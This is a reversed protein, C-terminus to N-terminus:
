WDYYALISVRVADGDTGDKTTQGAFELEAGLVLGKLWDGPRFFANGLVKYGHDFTEGAQYDRNDMDLYGFGVTSSIYPTWKHELAIQGGLTTLNEVNGNAPDYAMDLNNFSFDALTSTNGDTRVIHSKILNKEDINFLAGFLLGLGPENQRQETGDVKNFTAIGALRLAGWDRDMDIRGAVNPILNGSEISFGEPADIKPQFDELSVHYSWTDRSGMFKLQTPRSGAHAGNSHSDGSQPLFKLTNFTSWNKGLLWHDTRMYMQRIRFSEDTGKFDFEMLATLYDRLDVEIGLQSSKTSWNTNWDTTNQEGVPIQPINLDFPHFNERNDVVMLTRLSGYFRILKNGDASHIFLGRDNPVDLPASDLVERSRALLESPRGLHIRDLLSPRDGPGDEAMEEGAPQAGLSTATAAVQETAPPQGQPQQPRADIADAGDRGDEITVDSAGMLANLQAQLEALTEQQAELKDQQSALQAKQAELKEAQAEIAARQEDILRQMAAIPDADSSQASVSSSVCLLFSALAVAGSHRPMSHWGHRM